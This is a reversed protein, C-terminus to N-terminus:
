WTVCVCCVHLGQSPWQVSLAPCINQANTKTHLHRHSDVSSGTWESNVRTNLMAHARTGLQILFTQNQAGNCRFLSQAGWFVVVCFTWSQWFYCELTCRRLSSILHVSTQCRVQWFFPKCMHELISTSWSVPVSFLGMDRYLLSIEVCM